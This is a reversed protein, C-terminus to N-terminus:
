FAKALTLNPKEIFRLVESGRAKIYGYGTHPSTPVIGFTVVSGDKAYDVAIDLSKKYAIKDSIYHDSPTILLIEEPDVSLAAMAIAGATNKGFPELIFQYNNLNKCEDLAIFYNAENCVIIHKTAMNNRSITLGFLTEDEFLKLFQKPMMTRSLPWLRTGAGGCLIVNTM